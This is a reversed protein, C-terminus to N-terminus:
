AFNEASYSMSLSPGVFAVCPIQTPMLVRENRRTRAERSADM